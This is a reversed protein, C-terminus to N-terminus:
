GPFEEKEENIAKFPDEEDLETGPALLRESDDGGVEPEAVDSGAYCGGCEVVEDGHQDPVQAQAGQPYKQPPMAIEVGCTTLWVVTGNPGRRLPKALTHYTTM